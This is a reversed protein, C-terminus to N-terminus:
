KCFLILHFLNVVIHNIRGGLKTSM